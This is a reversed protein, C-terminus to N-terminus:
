MNGSSAVLSLTAGVGDVWVGKQGLVQTVTVTTFEKVTSADNSGLINTSEVLWLMKMSLKKEVTAQAESQPVDSQTQYAAGIHGCPIVYPATKGPDLKTVGINQGYVGCWITGSPGKFALSGFGLPHTAMTDCEDPTTGAEFGYLM